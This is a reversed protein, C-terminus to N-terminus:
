ATAVLLPAGLLGFPLSLGVRIQCRGLAGIPARSRSPQRATTPPRDLHGSRGGWFTECGLEGRVALQGSRQTNPYEDPTTRGLPNLARTNTQM